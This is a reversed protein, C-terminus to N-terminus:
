NSRAVSGTTLAADAAKGDAVTAEDDPATESRAEGDILQMGIRIGERARVGITHLAARSTECVDPKRECLGSLDQVAERAAYAAQIPGVTDGANEQEGTDIPIILLALSLWFACRILFGM